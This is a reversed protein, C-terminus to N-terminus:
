AMDQAPNKAMAANIAVALEEPERSGILLHRGTALELRVGLNGSVNYANGGKGCRIGWGGYDLIPNYRVALCETISAYDIRVPKLHFPVLRVYLADSQVQTILRCSLLLWPLGIGFLILTLWMMWDPSPNDGFPQGLVIQQIFGWWQLGAVAIIIIWLWWQTFAQVERFM